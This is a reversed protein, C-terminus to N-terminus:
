KKSSSKKPQKGSLFNLIDGSGSKKKRREEPGPGVDIVTAPIRHGPHGGHLGGM